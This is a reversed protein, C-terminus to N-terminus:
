PLPIVTINMKVGYNGNEQLKFIPEVSLQLKYKQTLAQYELLFLEQPTKTSVEQKTEESAPTAVADPQPTPQEQAQTEQSQNEM